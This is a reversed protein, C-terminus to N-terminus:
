QVMVDLCSATLSDRDEERCDKHNGISPYLAVSFCCEPPLGSVFTGSSGGGLNHEITRVM